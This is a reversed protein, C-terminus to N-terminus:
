KGGIILSCVVDDVDCRIESLHEIEQPMIDNHKNHMGLKSKLICWPKETDTKHETMKVPGKNDGETPWLISVDM